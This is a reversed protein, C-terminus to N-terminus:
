DSFADKLYRDHNRAVDKVESGDHCSGVVSWLKGWSDQTPERKLVEDVGERVIEALSVGRKAALARLKKHQEDTLQVQTRVM